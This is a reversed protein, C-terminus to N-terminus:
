VDVHRMVVLDLVQVELDDLRVNVGDHCRRVVSEPQVCARGFRELVLSVLEPQLRVLAFPEHPAPMVRGDLVDVEPDSVDPEM